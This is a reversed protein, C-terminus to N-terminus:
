SQSASSARPCALLVEEDHLVDLALREAVEEVLQLADGLLEAAVDAALDGLPEGGDVRGADDVAVELGLVHEDGGSWTTLTM